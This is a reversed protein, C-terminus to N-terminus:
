ISVLKFFNIMIKSMGMESTAQEVCGVSGTCVVLLAAMTGVSVGVVGASV